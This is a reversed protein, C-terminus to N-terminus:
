KQFVTLSNGPFDWSNGLPIKFDEQAFYTEDNRFKGSGNEVSHVCFEIFGTGAENINCLSDFFFLELWFLSAM